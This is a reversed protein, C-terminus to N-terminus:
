RFIKQITDKILEGLSLTIKRNFREGKETPLMRRKTKSKGTGLRNHYTAVESDFGVTLKNANTRSFISRLMDGSLKLNVPRIKKNKIYGKKIANRYSDSYKQLRGKSKVPSIGKEIDDIILKPLERQVNRIMADQAKKLRRELSKTNVKVRVRAM